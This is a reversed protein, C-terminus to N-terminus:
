PQKEGVVKIMYPLRRICHRILATPNEGKEAFAIMEALGYLAPRFTRYGEIHSRALANRHIQLIRNLSIESSPWALFGTRKPLTDGEPADKNYFRTTVPLGVGRVFRKYEEQRNCLLDIVKRGLAESVSGKVIGLFWDGRFGGGPLPAVRLKRRLEPHRNILERLQSYWCVTLASDPNLYRSEDGETSKSFKSIYKKSSSFLDQFCHLEDVIKDEVEKRSIESMLMKKVATGKKKDWTYLDGQETEPIAPSKWQNKNTSGIKKCVSVIADLMTCTLTEKALLDFDFRYLTKLREPVHMVKERWDSWTLPPSEGSGLIGDRYAILLVNAYYPVGLVNEGVSVFYPDREKNRMCASVDILDRNGMERMYESMYFEDISCIMTRDIPHGELVGLSDHVAESLDSDFRIVSVRRRDEIAAASKSPERGQPRAAKEPSPIGPPKEQPPRERPVSFASGMMMEIEDNYQSHITGETFLQLTLGPRHIPGTEFGVLGQLLSFDINFINESKKIVVGPVFETSEPSKANKPADGLSTTQGEGRIIVYRDGFIDIFDCALVSDALECALDVVEDAEKLQGTTGTIILDVGYNRMVYVFASLFLDGATSSKRLFPYSAGILGVDDPVVRRIKRAVPEERSHERIVDRVVEIFEEPLLAGGKFAV